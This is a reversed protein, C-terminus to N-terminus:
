AVMKGNLPMYLGGVCSAFWANGVFVPSYDSVDTEMDKKEITVKVKIYVYLIYWVTSKARASQSITM